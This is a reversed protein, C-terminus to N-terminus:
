GPHPPGGLLDYYKGYGARGWLFPRPHSNNIGTSRRSIFKKLFDAFPRIKMETKQQPSPTQGPFDFHMPCCFTFALIKM